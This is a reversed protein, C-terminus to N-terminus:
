SQFLDAIRKLGKGDTYKLFKEKYCELSEPEREWNFNLIQEGINDIKLLKAAGTEAWREPLSYDNIKIVFTKKFFIIPLLLTSFYGFCGEAHWILDGLEKENRVYVANELVPLNKVYDQPHLKIVLKRRAKHAATALDKLLKMKTSWSITVIPQDILLWYPESETIQPINSKLSFAQFFDDYNYPGVYEIMSDTVGDREKWYDSFEPALLIYKDALRAKFKSNFLAESLKHFRKLNIGLRILEPLDVISEPTLAKILFKYSHLKNKQYYPNSTKYRDDVLDEKLQDMLSISEYYTGNVGHFLFLTGIKKTKAALLLSITLFNEVGMFVVKYPNVLSLIEKPSSFETWYIRKLPIDFNLNEQEKYRYFLVTFDFQEQLM